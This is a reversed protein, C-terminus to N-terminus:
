GPLRACRRRQVSPGPGAIAWGRVGGAGGKLAEVHDEDAWGPLASPSDTQLRTAPAPGLAAGQACAGLAFAAAVIAIAGRLVM